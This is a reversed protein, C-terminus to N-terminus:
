EFGNADDVFRRIARERERANGEWGRRARLQQLLREHDLLLQPPRGVQVHGLVGAVRRHREVSAERLHLAQRLRVLVEALLRQRPVLRGVGDQVFTLRSPELKFPFFFFFILRLSLPPWVM